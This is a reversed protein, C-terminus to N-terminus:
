KFAIARKGRVYSKRRRSIPCLLAREQLFLVLNQTGRWVPLFHYIDQLRSWKQGSVPVNAGFQPCCLWQYSSFRSWFSRKEDM